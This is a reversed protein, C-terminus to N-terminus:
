WGYPIYARTQVVPSPWVVRQQVVPAPQVIRQEVIPAPRIVRTETVVPPAVAVIPRLVVRRPQKIIIRHARVHLPVVPVVTPTAAIYEEGIAPVGVTETYVQAGAGATSTLLVGLALFCGSRWAASGGRGAHERGLDIRLRRDRAQTLM